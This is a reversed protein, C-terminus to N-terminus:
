LLSKIVKRNKWKNKFEKDRRNHARMGMFERRLTEILVKLRWRTVYSIVTMILVWILIKEM